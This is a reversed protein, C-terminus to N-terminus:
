KYNQITILDRQSMDEAQIFHKKKLDKKRLLKEIKTFNGKSCDFKIRLPYQVKIFWDFFDEQQWDSFDAVSFLNLNLPLTNDDRETPMFDMVNYPNNFEPSESSSCSSPEVFLDKITTKQIISQFTDLIFERKFRLVFKELNKLGVLFQTDADSSMTLAIEKIKEPNKVLGMIHKNLEPVDLDGILAVLNKLGGSKIIKSVFNIRFPQLSSLRFIEINERLIKGRKESSLLQLFAPHAMYILRIRYAESRMGFDEFNMSDYTLSRDSIKKWEIDDFAAFKLVKSWAHDHLLARQSFIRDFRINRVEQYVNRKTLAINSLDSITLYDTIYKFWEPPILLKGEQDFIKQNKELSFEGPNKTQVSPELKIDSCDIVKSKPIELASDYNEELPLNELNNDQKESAFSVGAFMTVSLAIVLKKM